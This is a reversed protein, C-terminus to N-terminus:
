CAPLVGGVLGPQWRVNIARGSRCTVTFRDVRNYRQPTEAIEKFRDIACVAMTRVIGNFTRGFADPHGSYSQCVAQPTWGPDALFSTRTKGHCASAAIRIPNGSVQVEPYPNMGTQAPGAPLTPTSTFTVFGMCTYSQQAVAQGAGGALGAFGVAVGTLVSALTFKGM